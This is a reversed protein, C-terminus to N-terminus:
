KEYGGNVLVAGRTVVEGIKLEVLYEMLGRLVLDKQEQNSRLRAERGREGEMM